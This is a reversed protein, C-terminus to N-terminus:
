KYLLSICFVILNVFISCAYLIFVNPMFMTHLISTMNKYWKPNEKHISYFGNLDSHFKKIVDQIEEESQAMSMLKQIENSTLIYGRQNQKVSAEVIWFLLSLAIIGIIFLEKQYIIEAAFFASILTGFLGRTHLVQNDFNQIIQNRIDNSQKYLEFTQINM